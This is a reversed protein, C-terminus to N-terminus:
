QHIIYLFSLKTSESSYIWLYVFRLRKSVRSELRKLSLVTWPDITDAYTVSKEKQNMDLIFSSQWRLNSQPVYGLPPIPPCIGGRRFFKKLKRKSINRSRPCEHLIASKGRQVFCKRSSQIIVIFFHQFSTSLISPLLSDLTM